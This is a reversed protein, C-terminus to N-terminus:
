GSVGGLGSNAAAAKEHLSQRGASGIANDDPTEPVCRLQEVSHRQRQAVPPLDVKREDGERILEIRHPHGRVVIAFLEGRRTADAGQDRIRRQAPQRCEIAVHVVENTQNRLRSSSQAQCSSARVKAEVIVHDIADAVALELSVEDQTEARVTALGDRELGHLLILYKERGVVRSVTVEGAHQDVGHRLAPRIVQVSRRVAVQAVLMERPRSREYAARWVSPLLKAEREASWDHAVSHMEEDG